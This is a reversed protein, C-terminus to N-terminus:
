RYIYRNYSSDITNEVQYHSIKSLRVESSWIRINELLKETVDLQLVPFSFFTQISIIIRDFHLLVRM